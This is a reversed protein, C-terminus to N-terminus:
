SNLAAAHLEENLDKCCECQPQLPEPVLSNHGHLWIIGYERASYECLGVRTGGSVIEWSVPDPNSSFCAPCPGYDGSLPEYQYPLGLKVRHEIHWLRSMAELRKPDDGAMLKWASDEPDQRTEAGCTCNQTVPDYQHQDSLSM